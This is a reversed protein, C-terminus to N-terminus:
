GETASAGNVVTANFQAGCQTCFRADIPNIQHCAVCHLRLAASSRARLREQLEREIAARVDALTRTITPESNM